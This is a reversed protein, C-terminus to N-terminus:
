AAAATAAEYAFFGSVRDQTGFTVPNAASWEALQGNFTGWYYFNIKNAGSFNAKMMFDNGTSNDGFTATGINYEWFAGTTRAAAVPLSVLLAGSGASFGAVGAQINFWGWVFKNIQIYKGVATAGTGLTPNTVSGTLTPTYSTFAAPANLEAATLIQGATFTGFTAM